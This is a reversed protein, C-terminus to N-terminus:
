KGEKRSCAFEKIIKRAVEDTLKCDQIAKAAKDSEGAFKLHKIRKMKPKDVSRSEGNTLLVFGGGLVAAIIYYKGSDHGMRSIVLQGAQPNEFARM